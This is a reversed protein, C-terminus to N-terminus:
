KYVHMNLYDKDKTSINIVPSTKSASLARNIGKLENLIDEDKEIYHPLVGMGGLTLRTAMAMLEHNPIIQTGKKLYTLSPTKPTIEFSGDPNIRGEPGEESVLAIGEPSNDTGKAFKGIALQALIGAEAIAGSAIVIPIQALALPALAATIPNALLVAAQAQIAAVKEITSVAVRITATLAEVEAQERALRKNKEDIEEKDRQAKANIDAIKDAKEEQTATSANVADIESQAQSDIQNKRDNNAAEEKAFVANVTSTVSNLVADGFEKEVKKKADVLASYNDSDKKYLDKKAAVLSAEIKAREKADLDTRKLEADFHEISSQAAASAFNSQLSQIQIQFDRESILGKSHKKELALIEAGYANEADLQQSQFQEQRVKQAEANEKVIFDNVAKESERTSQIRLLEGQQQILLLQDELNQKTKVLAQQQPTLQGGSSQLTDIEQLSNRVVEAEAANNIEAANLKSNYYNKLAELREAFSKQDNDFILKDFEADISSEKALAEARVKISDGANKQDQNFTDRPAKGKPTKPDKGFFADGAALASNKADNLYISQETVADKLEKNVKDLAAQADTAKAQDFFQNLGREEKDVGTTTGDLAARSALLDNNAKEQAKTLDYVKESAAAFKKEAAQAAARNLIAQTATDISDKVRGNLIVEKELNGFYAPYTDQLEKVARGRARTSEAEDAAVTTLINLRAITQEANSRTSEDINNITTNYKQLAKDTADVNTNLGTFQEVVFQIGKAIVSFALFSIGMRTFSTILRGAINQLSLAKAAKDAIAQATTRTAVAEEEQAVINARTASNVEAMATTLEQARASLSAFAEGDQQGALALQQMQVKIDKLEATLTPYNGINLVRQLNADGASRIFLQLNDIQANYEMQAVTGEQTLLNLKNREVTLQAIAARAGNISDEDVITSQANQKIQANTTALEVNLLSLQETLQIGTAAFQDQSISGDKLAAANLKLEANVGAIQQKLILQEQILEQAATLNNLFEAAQSEAATTTKQTEAGLAAQAALQEQLAATEGANVVTGSSVFPAAPTLGMQESSQAQVKALDSARQDAIVKEAAAQEKAAAIEVKRQDALIKRQLLEAKLNALQAKAAQEDIRILQQTTALVDKTSGNFQEKISSGLAVYKNVEQLSSVLKGNVDVLASQANVVEKITSAGKVNIEIKQGKSSLDAIKQATVDLKENLTDLQEFAQKGVLDNINEQAGAM